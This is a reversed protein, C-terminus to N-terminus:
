RVSDARVRAPEPVTLPTTPVTKRKIAEIRKLIDEDTIRVDPNHKTHHERYVHFAEDTKGIAALCNAKVMLPSFRASGRPWKAVVEDCLGIATEYQGAERLCSALRAKAYCEHTGNSVAPLVSEFIVAAEPFKGSAALHDAERMRALANTENAKALHTLGALLAMIIM